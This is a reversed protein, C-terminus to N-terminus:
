FDIFTMTHYRCLPRITHDYHIEVGNDATMKNTGKLSISADGRGAGKHCTDSIVTLRKAYNAYGLQSLLTLVLGLLLCYVETPDRIAGLPPYLDSPSSPYFSWFV